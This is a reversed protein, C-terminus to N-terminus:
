DNGKPERLVAAKTVAGSGFQNKIADITQYLHLKEETNDFLNMQMTFPILQSFRVGLLRIKKDGTYMKSFIGKAKALLVDDLATYSIVEQRTVVEFDAYKIKVTVCGTLKEETRVDYCAKETLRV